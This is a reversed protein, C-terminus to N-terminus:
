DKSKLSKKLLKDIAMYKFPSKTKIVKYPCADVCKFCTVCKNYDVNAYEGLPGNKMTIAQMPCTSVCTKCGKCLKCPITPRKQLTTYKYKFYLSSRPKINIPQTSYHFDSIILPELSDGILEFDFNFKGRRASENLLMSNEPNQNIIKLASADVAYPNEGVLLTNLIRPDNNAESGVIGDMINLVVKNELADCVDIIYNYYRNLSFCRSKILDKFRGPILGFMNQTCGILGLNKDCRFKGVNIIVDVDNIADMIYIDRSCEGNPNNVICISTNTNLIAHGNNSAELMKTKVYADDLASSKLSGKPSDAIICKAGIKAILEALASVVSPNTTKAINPETLSYLDPKILVTHSPKIFSSLGGLLDLAEKLASAVSDCDYEKCVKLAVKTNRM